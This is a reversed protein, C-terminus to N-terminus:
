AARRRALQLLLHRLNAHVTPPTDSTSKTRASQRWAALGRPSPALRCAGRRPRSPAWPEGQRAPWMLCGITFYRVSWTSKGSLYHISKLGVPGKNSRPEFEPCHRLAQLDVSRPRGRSDPDIAPGHYYIILRRGRRTRPGDLVTPQAYHLREHCRAELEPLEAGFAAFGLGM